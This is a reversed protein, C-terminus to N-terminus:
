FEVVSLCLHLGGGGAFHCSVGTGNLLDDQFQPWLHLAERTWRAYDPLNDGKSQGWVLGFNARAAREADDAGDLVTVKLGMRALGVAIASGVMGGGVVLTDCRSTM